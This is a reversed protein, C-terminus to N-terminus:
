VMVEGVVVEALELMVLQQHEEVELVVESTERHGTDAVTMDKDQGQIIRLNQIYVKAVLMYKTIHAIVWEVALAATQELCDVPRVEM